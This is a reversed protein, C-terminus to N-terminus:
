CPNQSCRATGAAVVFDDYKAPIASLFVRLVDLIQQVNELRSQVFQGIRCLRASATAERTDHSKYDSYLEIQAM